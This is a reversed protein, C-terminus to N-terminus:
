PRVSASQDGRALRMKRRNAGAGREIKIVDIETVQYGLLTGEGNEDTTAFHEADGVVIGADFRGQITLFLDKIATHEGAVVVHDYAEDLADLILNVRDAEWSKDGVVMNGCSIAHVDSDPLVRIVEEFTARGELLDTMGPSASLGLTRSMGLGDTAWDILIVQRGTGSIGNAIELAESSAALGRLANTIITRYGGQEEANQILREVITDLYVDGAPERTAVPQGAAPASGPVSVRIPEAVRSAPAAAAVPSAATMPAAAAPAAAVPARRMAPGDWQPQQALGGAPAAMQNRPGGRRSSALLEKLIVLAFGLILGAAAALLSHQMRKPSAPTSSPRAKSILQAELPVSKVDSRTRAAEFSAQLTELERRKAKARSELAALKAIQASKDGLRQKMEDLNKAVLEERLALAKAEKELGEVVVAAEKNVQRRVDNVNAILQKMRPHGPLLSTEAEAKEREVRTRQAILGQIVPSKQVETIADVMGRQMLDRASRARADAETRATRIKTMEGTLDALQQESLGISSSGGSRYLNETNRFREVEAEASSVEASLKEIQPRLWQSADETQTVGQSRLWDQYLSALTNAATAALENDQSTFELTIVRTDKVQYVRLAKTYNNLVREELTEGRRPGGIGVAALLKGLVGGIPMDTNFEPRQALRLKNAVKNALDRSQLAVVQSAIAEKDVKVAVSEVTPGNGVRPDRFPDNIGQGGIQLQAVSQYKTPVLSLVGLTAAGMFASIGLVRTSNRKLVSWLSTIDIDDPNAYSQTSM